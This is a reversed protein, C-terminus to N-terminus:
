KEDNSRGATRPSAIERNFQHGSSASIAEDPCVGEECCKCRACTCTHRPCLFLMTTPRLVLTLFSAPLRSTSDLIICRFKGERRTNEWVDLGVPPPSMAVECAVTFSLLSIKPQAM